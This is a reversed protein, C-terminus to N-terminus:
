LLLFGLSHAVYCICESIIGLLPSGESAAQLEAIDSGPNSNCIVLVKRRGTKVRKMDSIRVFDISRTFGLSQDRGKLCTLYAPVAGTAM